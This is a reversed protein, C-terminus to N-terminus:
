RVKLRRVAHFKGYAAAGNFHNVDEHRLHEAALQSYAIMAADRYTSLKPEVGNEDLYYEYKAKTWIAEQAVKPIEEYPLVEIIRYQEATDITFSRTDRNYMRNGRVIYQPFNECECVVAYQPVVVEGNSAPTLTVFSRNYWYGKGGNSQITKGVLALKRNAKLFAPHKSDISSVPAIGVSSLCENVAELRTLM